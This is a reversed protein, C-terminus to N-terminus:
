WQDSVKLVETGASGGQSMGLMALWRRYVLWTFGKSSFEGEMLADTKGHGQLLVVVQDEAETRLLLELADVTAQGGPWLIDGGSYDARGTARWPASSAVSLEEIHGKIRGTASGEALNLTKSFLAVDAELEVQRLHLRGLPTVTLWGDAIGLASQVQVAFGPLLAKWQWRWAVQGRQSRWRWSAQGNFVRGTIAYVAVRENGLALRKENGLVLAAPATILAYGLIGLLFVVIMLWTRPM